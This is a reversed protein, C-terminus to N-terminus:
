PVDPLEPAAGFTEEIATVWEGDYFYDARVRKAGDAGMAWTWRLTNDRAIQANAAGFPLPPPDTLTEGPRVCTAVLGEVANLATVVIDGEEPATRPAPQPDDRGAVDYTWKFSGDPQLQWVTVYNGVMGEADRFRGQSLALSGDCSKVVARPGWEAANAPDALANRLAAFPVPGDPGHIRAGPAAYRAQTERLGEDRVARAYAIETAVIASPQAKGPAKALSREIVSNSPGRPQGGACGALAFTVGLAILGTHKM